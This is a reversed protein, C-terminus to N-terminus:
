KVVKKRLKFDLICTFVARKENFTTKEMAIRFKIEFACRGENTLM